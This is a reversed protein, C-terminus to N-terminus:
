NFPSDDGISDKEGWDVLSKVSRTESKGSSYHLDLSGSSNRGPPSLPSTRSTFEWDEDLNDLLVDQEDSSRMSGIAAKDGELKQEEKDGQSIIQQLLLLQTEENDEMRSYNSPKVGLPYLTTKELAGRNEKM